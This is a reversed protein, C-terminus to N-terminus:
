QLSVANKHVANLVAQKYRELQEITETESNRLKTTAAKFEQVEPRALIDAEESPSLEESQNEQFQM